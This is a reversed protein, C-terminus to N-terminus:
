ADLPYRMIMRRGGAPVAEFGARVFLDVTGTSLRASATTGEPAPYAEVLTAGQEAAYRVAGDLLAGAVGTRRRDRRIYFCTVSWVGAGDPSLHPVLDKTRSLRRFENRPAVACWGVPQSDAYALLGVPGSAALSQLAGRREDASSGNMETNPLRWFM